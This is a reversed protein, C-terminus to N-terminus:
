GTGRLEHARVQIHRAIVHTHLQKVINGLAGINAKELVPISVFCLVM